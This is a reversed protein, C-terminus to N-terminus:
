WQVSGPTHPGQAARRLGAAFEGFTPVTLLALIDALATAADPRIDLTNSLAWDPGYLVRLFPVRAPEREAYRVEVTTNDAGTSAAVQWHLGADRATSHDAQCWPIRCSGPGASPVTDTM